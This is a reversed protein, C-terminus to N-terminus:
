GWDDAGFNTNYNTNFDTNVQHSEIQGNETNPNKVDVSGCFVGELEIQFCETIPAEYVAKKMQRTM